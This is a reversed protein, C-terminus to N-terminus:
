DLRLASAPDLRSARRAPLACAATAMAALGVAVVSVFLPDALRSASDAVTFARDWWLSGALGLAAGAVLPVRVTRLVWRVVQRPRAGLALRIGIERRRQAVGWAVVAYLGVTALLITLVTLSIAIRQGVRGNWNADDIARELTQVRYLPVRADLRQAEERLLATAAAVDEKARIMVIANSPAARRIPVYAVAQRDAGPRQRVVPAVAVITLWDPTAAPANPPTLAIQKGLPDAGPFFLEVFRDNVIAVGPAAADDTETFARGRALPVHLAQFYSPAIEVTLVGPPLRPGTAPRDRIDLRREAAGGAAPLASTTAAEAIAASRDRLREELLRFFGARQQPSTYAGAPLSLTATVIEDPAMLADSPLGPASRLTAVGVQALLVVALAIQATLFVAMSRRFLSGTGGRVPASKLVLSVDTRSAHISPALGFLLVAGFSVLALAGFIRADMSFDAWYPLVYEPIMARLGRTGGISLALGVAGGLVSLVVCEVLLQGVIRARTAGLSARIAIEPARRATRALMLNAVNACAVLVIIFGALVFAGWGELNGLLRDNITVVRARVNANTSPYTRALADMRAEIDARAAGPSVGDRLRGFVRLPRADRRDVALGPMQRLPVFVAATGPFGSREAVIGIVAAPSGNVLITRGVIAPDGDYRARWPGAGLVVVAPAGPADDTETFVRGAIPAIGILTFANATTYAAEVRDPSRGEDGITV